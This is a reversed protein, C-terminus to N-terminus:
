NCLYGLQKAANYYIRGHPENIEIDDIRDALESLEQRINRELHSRLEDRDWGIFSSMESGQRYLEAYSDSLGLEACLTNLVLTPKFVYTM